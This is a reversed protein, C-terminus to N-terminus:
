TLKSLQGAYVLAIRVIFAGTLVLVASLKMRLLASSSLEEGESERVELLALVLAMPFLLALLIWAAVFMFYESTFSFFPM